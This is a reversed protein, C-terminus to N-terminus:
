PRRHTGSFSATCILSLHTEWLWISRCNKNSKVTSELCSGLGLVVGSGGGNKTLLDHRAWMKSPLPFHGRPHCNEEVFTHSEMYGDSYVDKFATGGHGTLRARGSGSRVVAKATAAEGIMMERHAAAMFM